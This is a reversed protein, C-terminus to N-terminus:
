AAESGTASSYQHWMKRFASEIDQAFRQGNCVTNAMAERTQHRLQALRQKDAALEAILGVYDVQSKAVLDSMGCFHMMSATARCGGRDGPITPIPVGMWMSDYAITGSGWPFVDLLIDIESYVDLHQEPLEWGFRVRGTNIGSELLMQKTQERLTSSRLTDRFMLLKADPVATMVWAWLKMTQPSIKELRHTSGLTIFGNNAVPGPSVDPANIASYCCAGHPMMITKETFLQDPDNPERIKDTLFYDIRSLGTTNPYGLFSVQVPAPKRAFVPLRNESTHGALDVLIDIGDAQVRRSFEEDSLGRTSCWGDALRKVKATADDEMATESYFYVEYANRDHSQLLPFFFRMTAHSRLDPSVYGIRLTRNPNRDNKHNTIVPTTSEIQHGWEAHRKAVAEATLLPSLSAAYLYGSQYKQNDPDLQAALRQAELSEEWSGALQLARGLGAVAAPLSSNIAIARQYEEIADLVRGVELFLNARNVFVEYSDPTLKEATQLSQLASDIDGLERQVAGLNIHVQPMEPALESARSLADHADDIRGLDALVTGLNCLSAGNEVKNNAAEFSELSEHLRGQQRLATGLHGLAAAHGTDFRLVDRCIGEAEDSRRMNVLLAALNAKFEPEDPKLAIARRLSSEAHIEDGNAFEALGSLHWADANGPDTKLVKAYIKAAGDIDGSQHQRIATRLMTQTDTATM